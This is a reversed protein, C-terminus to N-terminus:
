APKHLTKLSRLDKAKWAVLAVAALTMVGGFIVSPVTGMLKAALGSEFAGIENSSGIFIGNVASVRGRMPDPTFAQMISARIVVSINDVMGCLALFFLSVLFTTSYAFAITFVGFLAVATFLTRGVREFPPRWAQYAAMLIAGLSPAARLWGLGKAGVGLHDAFVPLIAYVGGFLVAFMDLSIAGLMAPQSFVFRFGALFDSTEGSKAAPAVPVKSGMRTTFFAAIAMLVFVTGYAVSPGHWAYVFGGLAPGVISAVEWGTSNLSAARSYIERPVTLESYAFSAPWMYSRALGTLGVVVYLWHVSLGSWRTLSLFAVACALMVGQTV